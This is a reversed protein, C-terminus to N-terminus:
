SAWWASRRSSTEEGDAGGDAGRREEDSYVTRRRWRAELPVTEGEADSDELPGPAVLPETSPVGGDNDGDLVIVEHAAGAQSTEDGVGGGRPAM